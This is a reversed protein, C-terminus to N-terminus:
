TGIIRLETGFIYWHVLCIKILLVIDLCVFLILIIQPLNQLAILTTSCYLLQLFDIATM